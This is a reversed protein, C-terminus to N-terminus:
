DSRRRAPPHKDIPEGIVIAIKLVRTGVRGTGHIGPAQHGKNPHMKSAQAHQPGPDAAERNRKRDQHVDGPHKEDRRKIM